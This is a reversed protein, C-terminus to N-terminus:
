IADNSKVPATRGYRIKRLYESSMTGPKADFGLLGMLRSTSGKIPTVRHLSCRGAFLVLTGPKNELFHVGDREGKIVNRVREYNERDSTRILPFYEFNGGESGNRIALSTVFDTQDFHWRLYDGDKMVSVNLAGMPDAYPYIQELGLIAAIFKSVAEWEYIQRLLHTQPIQDYGIAGLATPEMLRRTHDAPLSADPEDLYANGVLANHHARTEISASEEVLRKIGAPTVFDPVEAVGVRGMESRLFEIVAKMKPSDFDHIPYRDFNIMGDFWQKNQATM